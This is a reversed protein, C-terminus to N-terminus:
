GTGAEGQLKKLLDDVARSGVAEGYRSDLAARM